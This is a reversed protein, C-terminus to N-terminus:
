AAVEEGPLLLALIRRAEVVQDCDVHYYVYLGSKQSFVLGSDLLIRLHHSITPQELSGIAAVLEHVAITGQKELLITLIRLRTPDAFAKLLRAQRQYSRIDATQTKVSETLLSTTM